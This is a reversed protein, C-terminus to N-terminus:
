GRDQGAARGVHLVEPQALAPASRCHRRAALGGGARPFRRPPPPGRGGDHARAGARAAAVRVPVPRLRRHGRHRRGATPRPRPAAGGQDVGARQRCRQDRLPRDLEPGPGRARGGRGAGGSGGAPAAPRRPVGPRRRVRAPRHGVRQPDLHRAQGRDGRHPPRRLRRQLAHPVAGAGGGGDGGGPVRGQDGRRGRDHGGLGDRFRLRRGRARTGYNAFEEFQNLIRNAPASRLERVKDYIEKVNSESGATAVVEAGYGRIKEFREASMEEPLVVLSRYGMRPGVWAGGIGFNGTSPFVLTHAGPVCEDQLQKEMLISYAPGVKHSGTPFRRGSLVVVPSRLGTLTEPLVTHPVPGEAKWGINWLNAPDLPQERAARARERVTPPVLSPDRMQAFTPGFLMCANQEVSLRASLRQHDSLADEHLVRVRRGSRDGPQAGLAGLDADVVVRPASACTGRGPACGRPM